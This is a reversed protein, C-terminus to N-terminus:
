PRATLSMEDMTLGEEIHQEVDLESLCCRRGHSLQELNIDSNGYIPENTRPFKDVIRKGEFIGKQLASTHLFM